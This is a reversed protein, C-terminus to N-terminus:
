KPKQFHKALSSYHEFPHWYLTPHKKTIKSSPWWWATTEINAFANFLPRSLPSQTLLLNGRGPKQIFPPNSSTIKKTLVPNPEITTLSQSEMPSSSRRRWAEQPCHWGSQTLQHPNHWKQSICDCECVPSQFHYINLPFGISFFNCSHADGGSGCVHGAKGM